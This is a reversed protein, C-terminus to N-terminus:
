LCTDYTIFSSSTNFIRTVPVNNLFPFPVSVSVDPVGSYFLQSFLIFLLHAIIPTLILCLNQFKMNKQIHYQQAFLAKIQRTSSPAKTLRSREEM